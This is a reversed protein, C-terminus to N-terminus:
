KKYIKKRSGNESKLIYVGKRLPTDVSKQHAVKKGDVSYIDVVDFNDTATTADDIGTTGTLTVTNSLRSDGINYVVGVRYDHSGNASRDTYTTNSASVSAIMRKDRYVNYREIVLPAPTYTIDDIMLAYADASTTRVAFYRADAPLAQEYFTWTTPVNNVTKLLQFDELETSESSYYIEFSETYRDSMAKAYLSITQEGEALLPSILWDDNHGEPTQSGVASISMLYQQGTHAAFEPNTESNIGLAAPYFVIYAMPDGEHDFEIGDIGYTFAYDNDITKWSGFGGTLWANYLEFSDTTRTSAEVNPASWNLVACGKEDIQGTLNNIHPYDPQLVTMEVPGDQNDSKDLDQGYDVEATFEITENDTLEPVIYFFRALDYYTPINSADTVTEVLNGDQYLRVKYGKATEQGLNTVKITIKSEAGIAGIKPASVKAQLNYKLYDIVYINDIVFPRDLTQSEPEFNIMIWEHNKYDSLNIVERGWGTETETEYNYSKLLTKSGDPTTVYVNMVMKNGSWIGQSFMLAPNDAGALSIKGSNITARDALDYLQLVMAGYEDDVTYRSSIAFSSWGTNDGWWFYGTPNSKDFSEHFPLNYADGVVFQTSREKSSEVGDVVASVRYYQRQQSGVLVITPDTYTTATLSTAIQEELKNYVNYTVTKGEVGAPADWTIVAAEGQLRAQVNTPAPTENNDQAKCSLAIAIFVFISLIHKM